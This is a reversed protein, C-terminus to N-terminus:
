SEYMQNGVFIIRTRDSLHIVDNPRLLHRNSVQQGNVLVPNTASLRSITVQGDDQVDIRLHQRSIASDGKVQIDCGMGRGILAGRQTLQFDTMIDRSEVRLWAVVAQDQQSQEVMRQFQDDSLVRTILLEDDEDYDDYDDYDDDIKVTATHPADDEGGEPQAIQTMGLDDDNLVARERVRTNEQPNDAVASQDLANYFSTSHDVTAPVVAQAPLAQRARSLALALIVVGIVFLITGFILLLAINDSGGAANAEAAVPEVPRAPLIDLTITPAATVQATEPQPLNYTMFRVPVSEELGNALTVHLLARQPVSNLTEHRVAYSPQGWLARVENVRAEITRLNANFRNGGSREILDTLAENEGDAISVIDIPAPLTPLDQRACTTQRSLDATILLIRWSRETARQMDNLVSLADGLCGPQEATATYAALFDNIQSESETPQLVRVRSDYIIMGTRDGSGSLFRQVAALVAPQFNLMGDSADLLIWQTLPLPVPAADLPLKQGEIELEATEITQGRLVRVHLVTGGEPLLSAFEVRTSPPIQAHTQSGAAISLLLLAILQRIYGSVSAIRESGAL